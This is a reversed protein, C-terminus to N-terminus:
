SNPYTDKVQNILYKNYTIVSRMIEYLLMLKRVEVDPIGLESKVPSPTAKTRGRVRGEV